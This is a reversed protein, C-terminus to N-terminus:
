CRQLDTKFHLSHPAGLGRGLGSGCQINLQKKPSEQRARHLDLDTRLSSPERIVVAKVTKELPEFHPEIKTGNINIRKSHPSTRIVYKRTLYEDDSCATSQLSVTGPSFRLVDRRARSVATGSADGPVRAVARQHQDEEFTRSKGEATGFAPPRPGDEANLSPQTVGLSQPSTGEEQRHRETPKVFLPADPRLPKYCLGEM